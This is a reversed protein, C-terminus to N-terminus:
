GSETVVQLMRNLDELSPLSEDFHNSAQKIIGKFHYKLSSMGGKADPNAEVCKQAAQLLAGSSEVIKEFLAPDGKWELSLLARSEKLYMEKASVFNEQMKYYDGFICWLHHGAASTASFKKLIDLVKTEMGVWERSGVRPLDNEEEVEGEEEDDEEDDNIELDDLDESVDVAKKEVAVEEPAELQRQKAEAIMKVLFELSFLNAHRSSQLSALKQLGHIALKVHGCRLAAEIYNDWLQWSERRLRVAEKLAALASSWSKRKMHLAALNNWSEANDSDLQTVRTFARLADDERDQRMYCYGCAFWGSPFLPNLGLALEWCEIAAGYDEKRMASAALSRQARAHRGKSREWAQVYCSDDKTVDGLACWLRPDDPSEELRDKILKQAQATKQLLQYCLILNDWHEYKEFVTLASGVMAHAILEEGYEKQFIPLPPYAITFIGPFRKGASPDPLALAEVLKEMRVLARERTRNRTKEFCVAQLTAAMKAFAGPADQKFICQVYPMMEWSQLETQAQSKSTQALWVLVLAQEQLTLDTVAEGAEGAGELKPLVLIDEEELGEVLWDRPLPDDEADATRTASASASAGNTTTHETLLVMQAKPDRQHVTRKGMIGTQRLEIGLTASAKAILAAAASVQQYTQMVMASEIELAASVDRGWAASSKALTELSEDCLRLLLDKLTASNRSLLKQHLHLARLKWWPLTVLDLGPLADFRVKRFITTATCMYGVLPPKGVVYEGDVSMHSLLWKKASAEEAGSDAVDEGSTEAGCREPNEAVDAPPGALNARAFVLLSAVAVLFYGLKVGAGEDGEVEREAIAELKEIWNLKADVSELLPRLRDLGARLLPVANGDGALARLPAALGRTLDQAGLRGLADDRRRLVARGEVTHRVLLLELDEIIAM